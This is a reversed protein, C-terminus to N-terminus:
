WVGNGRGRDEEEGAAAAAAKSFAKASNDKTDGEMFSRREPPVSFTFHSCM